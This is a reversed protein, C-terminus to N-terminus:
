FNPFCTKAYFHNRANCSWGPLYEEEGRERGVRKQNKGRISLPIGEGGEERKLGRRQGGEKRREEERGREEV